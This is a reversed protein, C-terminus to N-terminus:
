SSRVSWTEPYPPHPSPPPHTAACGCVARWRDCRMAHMLLMPMGRKVQIAQDRRSGPRRHPHSPVTPVPRRPETSSLYTPVFRTLSRTQSLSPVRPGLQEKVRPHLLKARVAARTPDWTSDCVGNACTDSSAECSVAILLVVSIYLMTPHTPRPTTTPTTRDHNQRDQFSTAKPVMHVDTSAGVSVVRSRLSM